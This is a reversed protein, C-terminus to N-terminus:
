SYEWSNLVYKEPLNGSFKERVSNEWEIPHVKKRHAHMQGNSYFKMPCWGCAHLPEGVHKAMHDKLADPRKFTKECMTCKSECSNEHVVKIHMKLSNRSALSNMCIPCKFEIKVGDPPHYSNMHRRLNKKDALRRGCIDCTVSSKGAHKLMHAKLQSEDVPVGCIDCMKHYKKLHVRRIHQNLHNQCNFTKDCQPCKAKENNEPNHLSKHSKLTYESSLSKGCIDCEYSRQDHVNKYHVNLCARSSLVKDCYKCKLYDPNKHLNIHDMIESRTHLKRNCCMAYGRQNHAEKYHKMAASLTELTAQCITCNIQLYEAIIKDYKLRQAYYKLSEATNQEDQDDDTDDDQENSNDKYDEDTEELKIKITEKKKKKSKQKQPKRRKRAPTKNEKVKKDKLETPNEEHENEDDKTSYKIDYNEEEHNNDNGDNSKIEKVDNEIEESKINVLEVTNEENVAKEQKRKPKDKKNVDEKDKKLNKKEKKRIKKELYSFEQIEEKEFIDLPNENLLLVQPELHSTEVTYFTNEEKLDESIPIYKTETLNNLNIHAQEIELYFKHFNHLTNWCEQCIHSYTNLHEMKWLYKEVIYQANLEQWEISNIIVGKNGYEYSKLCLLCNM